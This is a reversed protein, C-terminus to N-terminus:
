ANNSNSEHNESETEYLAMVRERDTQVKPDHALAQLKADIKERSKKGPEYRNTKSTRFALWALGTALVPIFVFAWILTTRSPQWRDVATFQTTEIAQLTQTIILPCNEVNTSGAIYNRVKFFYGQLRVHENLEVDQEGIRPFNEPLTMAYICYPGLKSEHPRMWLVYYHPIGLSSSADLTEQRVRRVWGEIEIQQGRYYDPQGLLEIRSVPQASTTEATLAKEWIRKWAASDGTWGISTQDQVQEYILPDIVAQLREVSKQQGITFEKESASAALAPQIQQEWIEASEYMENALRTTQEAGDPAVSLEDFLDQQYRDRTKSLSRTLQQASERQPHSISQGQRIAKLLSLLTEQQNPNLKRFASQWFKQAAVPYDVQDAESFFASVSINQQNAIRISNDLQTRAADSESNPSHGSILVENIREQPRQSSPTLKQSTDSLEISHSDDQIANQSQVGNKDFGMWEWREPKGAEKMLFIVLLLMAFLMTLKIRIARSARNDPPVISTPRIPEDPSPEDFRM